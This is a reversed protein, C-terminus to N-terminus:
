HLTNRISFNVEKGLSPGCYYCCILLQVPSQLKQMYTQMYTDLLEDWITNFFPQDTNFVSCHSATSGPIQQCHEMGQLYKEAEPCLSSFILFSSGQLTSRFCADTRM